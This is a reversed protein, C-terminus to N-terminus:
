ENYEVREYTKVDASSTQERVNEQARLENSEEDDLIRIVFHKNILKERFVMKATVKGDEWFEAQEQESTNKKPTNLIFSFAKIDEKKILDMMLWQDDNAKKYQHLKVRFVEAEKLSYFQVEIARGALLLGHIEMVNM